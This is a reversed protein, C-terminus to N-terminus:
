RPDGGSRQPIPDQGCGPPRRAPRGRHVQGISAAAVPQDTFEAFLKEVPQGLDARLVEKALAPDMPPADAQLRSLATQYAALEDSGLSSPNVMSLLQGAKM